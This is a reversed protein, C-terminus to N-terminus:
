ISIDCLILCLLHEHLTRVNIALQEADEANEVAAGGNEEEKQMEIEEIAEKDEKKNITIIYDEFDDLADDETNSMANEDNVVDGDGNEIEEEEGPLNGTGGCKCEIMDHTNCPSDHFTFIDALDEDRFKVSSSNEIQEVFHGLEGKQIQRQIMKEDITGATAMRYIHCELKQGDRWIRAMAQLDIAPNWESDFLVFRSAGILNLGAGGAKKSLLFVSNPDSATNFQDVIKQRVHVPTDGDLRFVCFDMANCLKEIMDLTKAYSSAIVCREKYEHFCALMECLTSLKGSDSVSEKYNKPFTYLFPRASIRTEKGQDELLKQHLLKPHNVLKRIYDILVLPEGTMQDCITQLVKKQIESPKCFLVYEHKNPLHAQLRSSLRRLLCKDRLATFEDNKETCMERFEIRNGFKGPRVFDLLSFFEDLDNQTPTGTLILRRPIELSYLATRIKGNINKLKHGEDCVLVDFKLLKLHEVHRLALDYSILLFPNYSHSAAYSRIDSNKQVAMVPKRLTGFWKKFESKWNNVLSSPVVLLCKLNIRISNKRMMAWIAAITQISKGLGMEDALICGGHDRLSKYIFTIGEKQHPRLHAAICSEVVPKPDESEDIVFPPHSKEKKNVALPSNFTGRSSTMIANGMFPKKSPPGLQNSLVKTAFKPMLAARQYLMQSVRKRSDPQNDDPSSSGSEESHSSKIDNSFLLRDQIQVEYGGMVIVKGSDLDALNKLGGTRGLVEKEDESKMVAYDAYCILIGDGEWTKHKKTSAKAYMVTFKALEKGTQNHSTDLYGKATGSENKPQGKSLGTRFM